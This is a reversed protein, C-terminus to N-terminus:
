HGKRLQKKFKWFCIGNAKNYTCQVYKTKHVKLERFRSFYTHILIFYRDNVYRSSKKNKVGLSPLLPPEILDFDGVKLTTSFQNQHKTLSSQASPLANNKSISTQKLQLQYWNPEKQHKGSTASM